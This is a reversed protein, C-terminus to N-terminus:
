RSPPLHIVVIPTWGTRLRFVELDSGVSALRKRYQHVSRSKFVSVVGDFTITLINVPLIYTLGLRLLSFPQIFPTMVLTGLTTSLLVKLFCLPNPELIEVFFAM